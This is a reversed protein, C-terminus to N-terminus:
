DRTERREGRAGRMECTDENIIRIMAAADCAGAARVRGRRGTRLLWHRSPNSPTDHQTTTRAGAPGYKGQTCERPTSRRQMDKSEKKREVFRLNTERESRMRAPRQEPSNTLDKRGSMHTSPGTSNLRAVQPDTVNHFRGRVSRRTGGATRSAGPCTQPLGDYIRTTRTHM